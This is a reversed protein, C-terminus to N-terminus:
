THDSEGLRYLMGLAKGSRIVARTADFVARAPLTRLGNGEGPRCGTCFGLDWLRLGMPKVDTEVRRALDRVFLGFSRVGTSGNADTYESSFVKHYRYPVNESEEVFHYFTMCKEDPLDLAAIKGDIQMLLGFPSDAGYGSFNTLGEFSKSHHGIVSFSYIPHGTRVSEPHLRAAETLAGMHSPSSRIDFPKGATFEFNFTPFLLTGTPGVAVRFSELIDQVFM